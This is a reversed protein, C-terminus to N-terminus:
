CIELKLLDHKIEGVEDETFQYGSEPGIKVLHKEFFAYFNADSLLNKSIIFARLQQLGVFFTMPGNSLWVESKIRGFAARLKKIKNKNILGELWGCVLWGIAAGLLFYLVLEAM